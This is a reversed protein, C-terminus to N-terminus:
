PANFSAPDTTSPSTDVVQVVTPSVCLTDPFQVALPATTSVATNNSPPPVGRIVTPLPLIPDIATAFAPPVSRISSDDVLLEVQRSAESRPLSLGSGLGSFGGSAQREAVAPLTAPEIGQALVLGGFRELVSADDDGILEFSFSGERLALAVEMAREVERTLHGDLAGLALVGEEALLEGLPTGQRAAQRELVALHTADILNRRVLLERLSGPAQRDRAAVVRGARFLLEHEGDRGELHLLGSRRSIGVMYLLEAVGLDEINGKLSM